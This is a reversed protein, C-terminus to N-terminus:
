LHLEQRPYWSKLMAIHIHYGCRKKHLFNFPPLVRVDGWRLYSLLLTDPRFGSLLRRSVSRAPWKLQPEMISTFVVYSSRRSIAPSLPNHSMSLSQASAGSTVVGGCWLAAKSLRASASLRFANSDAPAVWLWDRTAVVTIPFMSGCSLNEAATIYYYGALKGFKIRRLM